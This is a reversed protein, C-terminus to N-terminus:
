NKDSINLTDGDRSMWEPPIDSEVARIKLTDASYEVSTRKNDDWLVLISKQEKTSSDYTISIITGLTETGQWGISPVLEVRQENKWKNNKM